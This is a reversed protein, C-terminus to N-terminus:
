APQEQATEALTALHARYAQAQQEIAAPELTASRYVLFPDQWHMGCQRASAEFPRLLEEITFGCRGERAFVEAPDAVSVAQLWRRGQLARGGSYAWGRRLVADLWEKLLAPAGFWQLPHQFVILQHELLLRQELPVDVYFDPYRQYLDRVTIGELTEVAARLAVNVRSRRPYPHVFYLLTKV